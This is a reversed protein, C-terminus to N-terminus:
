WMRPGKDRRIEAQVDRHAKVAADWLEGLRICGDEEASKAASLLKSYLGVNVKIGTFGKVVVDGEVGPSQLLMRRWSAEPRSAFEHVEDSCRHFDVNPRRVTIGDDNHPLGRWGLGILEALQEDIYLCVKSRPIISFACYFTNPETPRNCLVGNEQLFWPNRTAPPPLTDAAWQLPDVAEDAAFLLLRQLHLSSKIVAQWQQSVRQALLVYRAPTHLLIHELLETTGFVRTCASVQADIAETEESEADDSM